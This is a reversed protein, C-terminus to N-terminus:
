SARPVPVERREAVAVVPVLTPQVRLQQLVQLGCVVVVASEAEVQRSASRRAAEEAVRMSPPPVQSRVLSAPVEQVVKRVEAVQAPPHRVPQEPEAVAVALMLPWPFRVARQVLAALPLPPSSRPAVLLLRVQPIAVAVGVAVLQAM